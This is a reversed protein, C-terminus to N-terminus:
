NKMREKVDHALKELEAAKRVVEVSLEDKSAKDVEEKLEASLVVLRATDSQLRKRREDERMHELRSATVGSFPDSESAGLGTGQPHSVPPPQPVNQGVGAAVPWLALLVASLVAMRARAICSFFPKTEM